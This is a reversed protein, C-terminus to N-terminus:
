YARKPVEGYGAPEVVEVSRHDYRYCSIRHGRGTMSSLTTPLIDMIAPVLHGEQIRTETTDRSIM